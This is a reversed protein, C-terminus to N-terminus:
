FDKEVLVWPSPAPRSDGSAARDARAQLEGWAAAGHAPVGLPLTRGTCHLPRWCKNDACGGQPLFCLFVAHSSVSICAYKGQGPQCPSPSRSWLYLLLSPLFASACAWLQLRPTSHQASVRVCPRLATTQPAQLLVSGRRERGVNGTKNSTLLSRFPQAASSILSTRRMSIFVFKPALSWVGFIRTHWTWIGVVTETKLLLWGWRSHVLKASAVVELAALPIGEPGSLAPTVWLQHHENTGAAWAWARWTGTNRPGWCSVLKLKLCVWSYKCTFTHIFSRHLFRHFPQVKLAHSTQLGSKPWQHRTQNELITRVKEDAPQFDENGGTLCWLNWRFCGQEFQSLIKREQPYITLFLM